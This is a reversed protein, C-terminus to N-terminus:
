RQATLRGSVFRHEQTLGGYGWAHAPIEEVIVYSVAEFPSLRDELLQQATAIFDAVQGKTNTGATVCIRLSAALRKRADLSEAGVFWDSSKLREIVVGTVSPDKGLIRRTVETLQLALDSSLQNPVMEPLQLTLLPM